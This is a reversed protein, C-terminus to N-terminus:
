VFTNGEVFFEVTFNHKTVDWTWFFFVKGYIQVFETQILELNTNVMLKISRKVSATSAVSSSKSPLEPGGFTRCCFTSGLITIM